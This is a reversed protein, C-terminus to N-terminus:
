PRDSSGLSVLNAFLRYAGPVGAPLERFWSYGTYIYHGDGYNAVLLGGDRDPENPDHSSIIPTYREDWENPFYLGREQIWGDFDALTIKNPHNLVEHNPALIKVPADEVSVRDRSLKFPYPGLEKVPLGRSTNYQVIMTGGNEVYQMLKAQQYKLWTETNYARIGVIIADYIGLDRSQIASEDLLNVNYGIQELSAPIADGSGMIYGINHGATKIDLKVIKSKSHRYITQTPIHDYEIIIEEKVYSQDGITAIPSILGTSQGEPATLQFEYFAKEGKAGITFDISDPSVSWDNPIALKLSGSCNDKGAKVAVKITRPQNDVFIEVPNELDVSVPAIVEFPRYTEGKVRDTKKFVMPRKITIESGEINMTITADNGKPTEPLGRKLQDEVTYMGLEWTQDLWYSNTYPATSPISIEKEWMFPSEWTLAMDMTTDVAMSPITLQKLSVDINSRNIIETKLNVSGGATSHYDSTIVEAFLGLSGMIVDEIEALKLTRWRSDPLAKIQNQIALLPKISKSPDSWDFTNEVLALSKGIMKGGEVRSWTTNIGDFLNKSPQEGELFELYEMSRGRSSTSGMGQCRHQSRSEAAIETNSKGKIPYFVGIDVAILKSKDAEAFKARSGYFWWSTNWM